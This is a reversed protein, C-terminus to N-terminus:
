AIEFLQAIELEFDLYVPPGFACRKMYYDYIYGSAEDSTNFAAKIEWMDKCRLRRVLPLPAIAYKAFFDAEAEEIDSKSDDPNDHHGLYCHGIEHFITWRKRGENTTYDNYYIVYENMDTFPNLEVRSFGDPDIGLAEMYEDPSLSSYPRLVYCLKEAIAFCDIPYTHVDTEEFMFLIEQKIEDCRRETLKGRLGQDKRLCNSRSLSPM